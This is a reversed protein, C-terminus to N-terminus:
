LKVSRDIMPKRFSRWVQWHTLPSPSNKPSQRRKSALSNSVACVHLPPVRASPVCYPKSVSSTQTCSAPPSNRVILRPAASACSGCLSLMKCQPAHAAHLAGLSMMTSACVRWQIVSTIVRNDALKAAGQPCWLKVRNCSLKSATPNLMLTWLLSPPPLDDHMSHQVSLMMHSAIVQAVVQQVLNKRGAFGRVEMSLSMGHHSKSAWHRFHSSTCQPAWNMLHAPAFRLADSMAESM